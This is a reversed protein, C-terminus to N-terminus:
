GLIQSLSVKYGFLMGFNLGLSALALLLGFVGVLCRTVKRKQIALWIGEVSYEIAGVLPVWRSSTISGGAHFQVKGYDLLVRVKYYPIPM